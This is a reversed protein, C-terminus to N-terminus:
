IEEYQFQSLRHSGLSHARQQKVQNVELSIDKGGGEQQMILNSGSLVRHHKPKTNLIYTPQGAQEILKGISNQVLHSITNYRLDVEKLKTKKKQILLSMLKAGTKFGLGNRQLNVRELSSNKMLVSEFFIIGFRDGMKNNSIDLEKLLNLEQNDILTILTSFFAVSLNLSSLNLRSISTRPLLTL